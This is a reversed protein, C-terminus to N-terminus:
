CQNKVSPYIRSFKPIVKSSDNKDKIYQENQIKIVLTQCSNKCM